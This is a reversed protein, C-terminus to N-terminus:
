NIASNDDVVVEVADQEVRIESDYESNSDYESLGDIATNGNAFKLSSGSCSYKLSPMVSSM